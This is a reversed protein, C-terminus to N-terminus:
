PRAPQLAAVSPAPTHPGFRRRRQRRRPRAAAAAAVRFAAGHRNASGRSPEWAGQRGGEGWGGAGGPGEGVPWYGHYATSGYMAQPCQKAVPTVWVADVGLKQLYSM